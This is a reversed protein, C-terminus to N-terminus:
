DKLVDDISVATIVREAYRAMMVDDATELRALVEASAPGFKLELQRQLLHRQRLLGQSLGQCATRGAIGCTGSVPRGLRRAGGFGGERRGDRLFLLGLLAMPGLGRARLEDDSSHSIDDVVVEFM